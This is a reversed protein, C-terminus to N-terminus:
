AGEAEKAEAAAREKDIRKVVIISVEYLMYLPIAVLMQSFVDPSPTIVAAVIIIVVFSHKRYQVLFDSSVLGIKALFYLVIPTEFILGVPITFMTISNVLAALTTTNAIEPSVSYTSLFTVAIPTIIFYGFAVGSLFLVSCIFVMGRAAIIEKKYLGPRIFRWVEFLIYPFSVIFGLWLSVKIHSLFQEQIDRTIIQLHQPYFCFQPLYECFLQYTIFDPSTPGLIVHQFVFDKLLFVIVTFILVSAAARLLHWRLEEIHEFFSMENPGKKSTDIAM